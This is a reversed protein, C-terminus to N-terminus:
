TTSITSRRACRAASCATSRSAAPKAASTALAMDIGAFAFNGTMAQFQWAGAIFVDRAIAEMDFPDRGLVIPRMAAVASAIGAADAARTCEGWGILGNDAVLKVVVDTVGDRAVLSSVEAHTYPVRVPVVELHEIRM